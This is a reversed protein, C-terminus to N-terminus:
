RSSRGSFFRIISQSFAFHITCVLEALDNMLYYSKTGTFHSLHETRLINLQKGLEAFQKPKFKFQRQVGYSAILVPEDDDLYQEVTPHTRNPLKNLELVLQERLEAQEDASRDDHMEKYLKQILAINGPNKRRVINREMEATTTTTPPLELKIANIKRHLRRNCQAALPRRLNKLIATSRTFLM